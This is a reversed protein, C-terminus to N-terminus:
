SQVRHPTPHSPRMLAKTHRTLRPSTGAALACTGTTRTPQAARESTLEARVRDAISAIQALVAQPPVGLDLTVVELIRGLHVVEHQFPEGEGAAYILIGSPLDTAVCYALLQYLDANRYGEPEIRKYKVDGVFLCRGEQWLSLDPKLPVRRAADLHMPRGRAGQVLTAPGVRLAERLATVVFDEFIVNMDVLFTGAGVAGPALDFSAGGIILRALEVAPRLRETLRTYRVQPVRRPDFPPVSVASLMDDIARLPWRIAPNRLPLREVRAIAARVLQNPLIDETFEDFVVDIPPVRGYRRQALLDMQPRGRITQLADEEVRYGQPVGRRYAARVQTVFGPIIAEVLDTASELQAQQGTWWRGSAYSVLFLVREMPLKPEILLDLGPLRVAGISSGPTVDYAGEAGISPVVTISPAIRRLTDRQVATLEIRQSTAYERLVERRPPM